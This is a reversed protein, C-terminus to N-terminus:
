SKSTSELKAILSDLITIAKSVAEEATKAYYVVPVPKDSKLVAVLYKLADLWDENLHSINHLGRTHLYNFESVPISRTDPAKALDKLYKVRNCYYIGSEKDYDFGGGLTLLAQVIFEFETVGYQKHYYAYQYAYSRIDEPYSVVVLEEATMSLVAHRLDLELSELYAGNAFTVCGSVVELIVDGVKSLTGKLMGNEIRAVEAVVQESDEADLLYVKFTAADDGQIYFGFNQNSLVLNVGSLWVRNDLDNFRYGRECDIFGHDVCASKLASVQPFVWSVDLSSVVPKLMEEYLADSVSDGAMYGLSVLDLVMAHVFGVDDSCGFFGSAGEQDAVFDWVSSYAYLQSAETFNRSVRDWYLIAKIDRDWAYEPVDVAYVQFVSVGSEVELRSFVYVMAGVRSAVVARAGEQYLVEHIGKEYWNLLAATVGKAFETDAVVDGLEGLKAGYVM